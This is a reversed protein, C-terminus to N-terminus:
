KNRNIVVPILTILISICLFIIYLISSNFNTTYVFSYVFWWLGIGSAAILYIKNKKSKSRLYVIWFVCFMFALYIMLIQQVYDVHSYM